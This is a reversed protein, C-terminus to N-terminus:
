TVLTMFNGIISYQGLWCSVQDEVINRLVYIDGHVGKLKSPHPVRHGDIREIPVDDKFHNGRM